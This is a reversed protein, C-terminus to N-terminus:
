NTNGERRNECIVGADNLHKCSAMGWGHQRCQEISTESGHCRLYVLLAPGSGKVTATGAWSAKSYNLM